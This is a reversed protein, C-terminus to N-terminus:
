VFSPWDLYELDFCFIQCPRWRHHPRKTMQSNRFNNCSPNPSLRDNWLLPPGENWLLPPGELPPGENKLPDQVREAKHYPLIQPHAIHISSHPIHISRRIHIPTPTAIISQPPPSPYPM